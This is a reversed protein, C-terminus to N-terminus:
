YEQEPTERHKLQEDQRMESEFADQADKLEVAWETAVLVNIKAIEEILAQANAFKELGINELFLSRLEQANNM